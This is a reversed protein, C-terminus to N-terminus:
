PRCLYIWDLPDNPVDHVDVERFGADALMRRALQEGWAAGLGAGGYALSVPLCHLTSAAYIWPPSPTASTTRL